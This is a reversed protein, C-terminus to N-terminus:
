VIEIFTNYNQNEDEIGRERNAMRVIIIRSSNGTSSVLSNWCILYSQNSILFIFCSHEQIIHM